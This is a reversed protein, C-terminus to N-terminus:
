KQEYIMGRNQASVKRPESVRCLAALSKRELVLYLLIYGVSSFVLGGVCRLLLYTRM